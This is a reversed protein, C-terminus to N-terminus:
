TREGATTRNTPIAIGFGRAVELIFRGLSQDLLQGKKGLKAQSGNDNEVAMAHRRNGYFASWFHSDRLLHAANSSVSVLAAREKLELTHCSILDEFSHITHNWTPTM